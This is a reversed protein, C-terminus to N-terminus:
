KNLATKASLTYIGNEHTLNLDFTMSIVDLIFDAPKDDFQATLVLEELAKDDLRIDTYYVKNLNLIVQSLKTNQFILNHTKWAMYNPDANVSKELKRNEHYLTGKEGANLTLELAKEPEEGECCTVQVIGTKVTVEVSEAEPYANVNFSTGLVKVRADGANIIFPRSADPKVDFFAEGTVTVERLNDSFKQPYELKSNSNLTVLTGDPLVFENIVQNGIAAIEAFNQSNQRTIIYYGASGILLTVILIAAYRYFIATTNKRLETFRGSTAATTKIHMHVKNWAAGTDFEELQYYEGAKIVLLKNQELEKKNQESAAAWDEVKKSESATAEGSLYRGMLSWDPKEISNNTKM